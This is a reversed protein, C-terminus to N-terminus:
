FELGVSRAAEALAKVRGHFKYGGRDFYVQKINQKLAKEALLKGVQTAQETKTLSTSNKLQKTSASVLTRAQTDDIIQAWIHRNSRFVSLRLRQSVNKLRRRIRRTRQQRKLILDKM